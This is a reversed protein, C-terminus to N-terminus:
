RDRVVEQQSPQIAVEEKVKAPMKLAEIQNEIPLVDMKQRVKEPIQVPERLVVGWDRGKRLEGNFSCFHVRELNVEEGKKQEYWVLEDPKLNYRATGKMAQALHESVTNVQPGKNNDAEQVMFIPPKGDREAIRLHYWTVEQPKAEELTKDSHIVYQDRYVRQNKFQDSDTVDIDIM